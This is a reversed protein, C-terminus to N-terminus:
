FWACAVAVIGGSAGLLLAAAAARPARFSRFRLRRLAAGGALGAAAVLAGFALAVVSASLLWAVAKPEGVLAQAAGDVLPRVFSATAFSFAAGALLTARGQSAGRSGEEPPPAGELPAIAALSLLAGVGLLLVEVSAGPGVGAARALLGILMPIAAGGLAFRLSRGPGSGAGVAPAVGGLDAVALLALLVAVAAPWAAPAAVVAVPLAAAALGFAALTFGFAPERWLAASGGEASDFASPSQM